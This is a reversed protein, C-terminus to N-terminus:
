SLLLLLLLLQVTNGRELIPYRYLNRSVLLAWGLWYMGTPCCVKREQKNCVMDRLEQVLRARLKPAQAGTAERRQAVLAKYAPCVERAVCVAGEGCESSASVEPFVIQGVACHALLLVLAAAM